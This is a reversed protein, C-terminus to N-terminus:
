DISEETGLYATIVEPSVQIEQPSGEAIKAGFNLVAIEECLGMIFRMHHEIVLLTVGVGRIKLLLDRFQETEHDNLGSTPEDLLLVKPETALARAVELYRQEGLPLRSAIRNKKDALGFVNLYELSQKRIDKEERTSKPLRLGCAFFEARSRYHRGLM